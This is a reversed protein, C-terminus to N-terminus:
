GLHLKQIIPVVHLLLSNAHMDDPFWIRLTTIIIPIIVEGVELVTSLKVSPEIHLTEREQQWGECTPLLRSHSTFLWFLITDFM